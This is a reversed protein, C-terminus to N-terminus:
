MCLHISTMRDTPIYGYCFLSRYKNLTISQPLNRQQLSNMSTKLRKFFIKNNSISFPLLTKKINTSSHNTVFLHLSSLLMTRTNRNTPLSRDGQKSIIAM